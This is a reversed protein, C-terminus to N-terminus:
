GWFVVSAYCDGTRRCAVGVGVKSYAKSVIKGQSGGWLVYLKDAVPINGASLYAALDSLSKWGTPLGTSLNPMASYNTNVAMTIAWNNAKTTLLPDVKLASAGAQARSNNILTVLQGAVDPNLTVGSPAAIAKVTPTPTPTPSPPPVPV